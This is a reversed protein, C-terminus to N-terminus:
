GSGLRRGSQLGIRSSDHRVQPPAAAESAFGVMPVTPLGYVSLSPDPIIPRRITAAPTTAPATATPPTAPAIIPMGPNDPAVVVPDVPEDLEVVAGAPSPYPPGWKRPTPGCTRSSPTNAAAAFASLRDVSSRSCFSLSPLVVIASTAPCCSTSTCVTMSAISATAFCFM